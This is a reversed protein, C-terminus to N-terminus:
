AIWRAPERAPRLGAEFRDAVLNSSDRCTSIARDQRRCTPFGHWIAFPNQNAYNWIAIQLEKLIPVRGHDTFFVPPGVKFIWVNYCTNRAFPLAKHSYRQYRQESLPWTGWIGIKPAHIPTKLGLAYFILVKMNDFSSCRNWGFIAFRYLGDLVEDATRIHTLRIWSPPRGANQWFDVSIAM